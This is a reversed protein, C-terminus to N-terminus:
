TRMCCGRSAQTMAADIALLFPERWENCEVIGDLNRVGTIDPLTTYGLITSLWSLIDLREARDPGAVIQLAM